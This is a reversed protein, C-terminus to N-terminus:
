CRATSSSPDQVQPSHSWNPSYSSWPQGPFQRPRQRGLAPYSGLTAKVAPPALDRGIATRDKQGIFLTTPVQLHKLEYVVPQNFVMDLGAGPEM